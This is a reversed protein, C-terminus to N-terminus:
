EVPLVWRLTLTEWISSLGSCLAKTSVSCCCNRCPPSKASSALCCEQQGEPAFRSPSRPHIFLHPVAHMLFLASQQVDLTTYKSYSAAHWHFELANYCATKCWERELCSSACFWSAAYWCNYMTTHAPSDIKRFKFGRCHCCGLPLVHSSLCLTAM